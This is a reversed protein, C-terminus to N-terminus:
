RRKGVTKKLKILLRHNNSEQLEEIEINLNMGTENMEVIFTPSVQRLKQPINISKGSELSYQVM